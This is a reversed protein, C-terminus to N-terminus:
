SPFAWGGGDARGRGGGEEGGVAAEKAVFRNAEFVSIDFDSSKVDSTADEGLGGVHLIDECTTSTALSSSGNHGENPQGTCPGSITAM